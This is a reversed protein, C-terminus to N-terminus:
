NEQESETNLLVFAYNELRGDKSKTYMAYGTEGELEETPTITSEDTCLEDLYIYAQGYAETTSEYAGILQIMQSNGKNDLWGGVVVAKVKNNRM